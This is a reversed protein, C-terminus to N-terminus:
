EAEFEVFEVEDEVIPLSEEVVPQTGSASIVITQKTEKGVKIEKASIKV